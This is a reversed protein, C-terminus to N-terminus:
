NANILPTFGYQQFINAAKSSHLYEYFVKAALKNDRNNNTLALPYLIKEHSTAPIDAILKVKASAQADTRYVIGLPAAGREVFALAARTNSSMALKSKVSDWLKLNVLAQKAYIGVPVHDPNGLALRGENLQKALNLQANMKIATVPSKLPAVLVLRNELVNILTDQQIKDQEQLYRMWHQNASFFLDAPAGRAIQRALTSSAAYVKIVKIAHQQEFTAAVKDISETLSAAAFITVSAAKSIQTIFISSTLAIYFSINSATIMNKSM